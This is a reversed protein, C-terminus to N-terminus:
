YKYTYIYIMQVHQLNYHTELKNKIEHFITHIYTYINYKFGIISQKIMNYTDNEIGLAATDYVHIDNYILVQM